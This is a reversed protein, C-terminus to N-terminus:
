TYDVHESNGLMFEGHTALADRYDVCGIHIQESNKLTMVFLYEGLDPWVQIHASAVEKRKPKNM